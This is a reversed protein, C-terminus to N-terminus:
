RSGPQRPAYDAAIKQVLAQTTELTRGKFRLALAAQLMEVSIIGPATVAMLALAALARDPNKIQLKKFDVAFCPASTPPLSVDAAYIVRAHEDLTEFIQRRRTIGEAALALVVDPHSIGTYDIPQPCLVLESVSHGRLVTIPYDNKQTAHLGATIGALCLLEGATVIRQGASGLLLIESRSAAPPSFRAAVKVPPETAPQEAALLRYHEAYEKRQNAPQLGTAPPQAAAADALVTPTLRNQRTYRGPCIGWIDVVSFGPHRIAAAIHRALDSEYATCRLTYTAGAAGAVQCADLPQELRNLFGSGVSAERPTTASFQGGTMGYNFNNLILLTLDLNRRCASLLHAGGIGLGGDGMTVVVTLDPRAMKLGTAYTLARGHLGHLAHTNFFTDFLGSCGIDSVLAVDSGCLQLDQLAKDLARTIREHSCGPCFVPPRETNLLSLM